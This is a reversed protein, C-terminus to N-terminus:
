EVAEVTGDGRRRVLGAKALAGLAEGAAFVDVGVERAIDRPSKVHGGRLYALIVKAHASLDAPVERKPKPAPQVASPEAIKESAPKVVSKPAKPESVGEAPQIAVISEGNRLHDLFVRLGVRMLVARGGAGALGDIEAILGAPLRVHVLVAGDEM